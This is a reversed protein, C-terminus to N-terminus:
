FLFSFPCKGTKSTKSFLKTKYGDSERRQYLHNEVVDKYESRYKKEELKFNDNLNNSYFSIRFLPDGKKIIVPKHENVITFAVSVTRSWNSLNFWAPVAIINNNLSTMPHDNQEIWIDDDETWFLFKPIYLQFVPQPSYIHENDIDIYDTKSMDSIQMLPGEPTREISFDLDVPSTGVFIRENKHVFAPCKQYVYKSDILSSQKILKSNLSYVDAYYITKSM